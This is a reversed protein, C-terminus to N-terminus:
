QRGAIHWTLLQLRLEFRIPGKLETGLIEAIRELRYLITHRHIGLRRAALSVNWDVECLCGLAEILSGQLSRDQEKIKVIAPCIEELHAKATLTRLSRLLVTAHEANIVDDEPQLYHRLRMLEKVDEYRSAIDGFNAMPGAVGVLPALGLSRMHGAFAASWDSTRERPKQILGVVSKGRICLACAGSRRRLFEGATELAAPLDGTEFTAVVLSVPDSPKLGIETLVGVSPPLTGDLLGILQGDTRRAVRLLDDEQAIVLAAFAAASEGLRGAVGPAMGNTEIVVYGRSRGATAIPAAVGLVLGDLALVQSGAKGGARSLATASLATRLTQEDLLAGTALRSAALPKFSENCIAAGAGVVGAICDCMARLDGKQLVIALLEQSLQQSLEMLRYQSAVFQPLLTRTIDGFKVHWPIEILPIEFIDALERMQQPLEAIHDGTAVVLGASKKRDMIEFIERQLADDKVLAMRSALLLENDGLSDEVDRHDTVHVWNVRRSLGARGATVVAQDLPAICLCEEITIGCDGAGAVGEPAPRTAQVHARHARFSGTTGAGRSLTGCGIQAAHPSAIRLVTSPM